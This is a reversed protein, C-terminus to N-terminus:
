RGFPEAAPCPRPRRGCNARGALDAGVVTGALRRSITLILASIALLGFLGLALDTLFTRRMDAYIRSEPIVLGFQWPTGAVPTVYAWSPENVRAGDEATLRMPAGKSRIISTTLFASARTGVFGPRQHALMLQNEDM